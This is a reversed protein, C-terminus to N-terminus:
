PQTPTDADPTLWGRYHVLLGAFPLSLRVDFTFRGDEVREETESRPLLARPIPLGLCTGGAVDMGFGAPKETLTIRFRFPGFREHVAGPGAATLHSTFRNGAFDRTWIEKDGRREMTVTVPIDAGPKPFRFLAATLRALPHTGRAVSARGTAAHLDWLDHMARIEPPLKAWRPGLAAEFLRPAPIESRECGTALRALATEAEDLTFESLAPRAGPALANRALKEVLITAPIAPISPGDGAEVTLTWRREVPSGDPLRGAVRAVMAGRDSGAREFLAALHRIPGAFRALDPLLGTRRLRALVALGRHLLPLELGARFLVSRARYAAPFLALDPAGIFAAPRTITGATVPRSGSWGPVERWRNGRWLRLPAGAQTLIAAMVSRGRPARNGPLIASEILAIEALGEALATAAASSLAPVSSVGSLVTRGAARAEADLETIEATFRADDSLDLYHAGAALAARATAHGAYAQFPGAADILCDPRQTALAAALSNEDTADLNLPTGGHKEAFDRAASESRGAVIVEHGDAILLRALRGGFTGYGGLVLIKM